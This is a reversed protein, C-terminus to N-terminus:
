TFAGGEAEGMEMGEEGKMGSCMLPFIKQCILVASVSQYPLSVCPAHLVCVFLLVISVINEEGM